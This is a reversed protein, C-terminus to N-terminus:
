DGRGSTKGAPQQNSPRRLARSQLADALALNTQVSQRIMPAIIRFGASKSTRARYCDNVTDLRQKLLGGGRIMLGVALSLQHSSYGVRNLPRLTASLVHLMETLPTTISILDALLVLSLLRLGSILAALLAEGITVESLVIAFQFLGVLAALLGITKSLILLRSRGPAGLSLFGLTAALTAASLLSFNQSPLLMVSVTALAAMKLSAPVRHLWSAKSMYLSIV